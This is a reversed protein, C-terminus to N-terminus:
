GPGRLPTLRAPSSIAFLSMTQTKYNCTEMARLAPALLPPQTKYGMDEGSSEEGGKASVDGPLCGWFAECM